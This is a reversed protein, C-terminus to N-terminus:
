PRLTFIRRSDQVFNFGFMGLTRQANKNSFKQGHIGLQFALRVLTPAIDKSILKYRIRQRTPLMYLEPPLHRQTFSCVPWCPNALASPSKTSQSQM